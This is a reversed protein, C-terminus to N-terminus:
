AALGGPQESKSSHRYAEHGELLHYTIMALNRPYSRRDGLLHYDGHSHYFSGDHRQLGLLYSYARGAPERYGDIGLEGARAFAAAVSATHYTVTAHRNDCQYHARGSPDLGGRLFGLVGQILPSANADGTLEHYRMLDLCQFANYQFCQFHARGKRGNAGEVTYPFEGSELQAATMFRMLGASPQLYGEDGTVGTLGALFRLLFASNNPVRAGARGAFYNVALQDGMRQFGIVETLYRHWRLVGKLYAANNTRRYSELLGLSAWTGEATAIRGKWERNPYEWAGDDRQNALITGSCRLAIERYSEEGTLDLLQWNDLVWYGQAQLYYYGDKWDVIPLYDKIFRGVRYNFRIGVDPGVLATGDWHRAVLYGHLRTAASYLSDMRDM